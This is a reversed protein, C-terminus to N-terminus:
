PEADAKLKINMPEVTVPPNTCCFIAWWINHGRVIKKLRDMYDAPFRLAYFDTDLGGFDDNGQELDDGDDMEHCYGKAVQELLRNLDIVLLKPVDNLVIFEDGSQVIYCAQLGPVNVPGTATHLHKRVNGKQCFSQPTKIVGFGHQPQELDVISVDQLMSKLIVNLSSDSDLVYAVILVGNITLLMGGGVNRAFLQRVGSLADFGPEQWTTNSSEEKGQQAVARAMRISQFIKCKIKKIDLLSMLAHEDMARPAAFLFANVRPDVSPNKLNLSLHAFPKVYAPPKRVEFTAAIADIRAMLVVDMVVDFTPILGWVGHCQELFGDLYFSNKVPVSISDFAKGQRRCPERM